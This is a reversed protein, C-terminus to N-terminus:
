PRIILFTSHFCVTYFRDDSKLGLWISTFGGGIRCKKWSIIAPKPFGTTGSTYILSAMDHLKAGARSSDPERLGKEVLIRRETDTNFNVVEVAGNEDRFGPAAMADLIDQTFQSKIEEDVFLVRATSTRICHLLPQGTLNYNIFAPCAGLSWLALWLFIFRPCNMFDMAVVEKPAIAYNIKLWSGYQLVIDYVEKFTWEQDNYVLFPSSATTTSIAREELIYFLNLQDRREARAIKNSTTILSYGLGVDYFLQAKANVWAASTIM